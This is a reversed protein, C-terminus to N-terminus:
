KHEIHDSPEFIDWFFMKMKMDNKDITYANATLIHRGIVM